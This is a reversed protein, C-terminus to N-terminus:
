NRTPAPEDVDDAVAPAKAQRRSSWLEAIWGSLAVLATVWLIPELPVASLTLVVAVIGVVVARFWTASWWGAPIERGSVLGATGRLASRYLLVGSALVVIAILACIVSGPLPSAFGIYGAVIGMSFSPLQLYGGNFSLIAVLGLLQMVGLIITGPIISHGEARIERLAPNSAALLFGILFLLWAGAPHSVAVLPATLTAPAGGVVGAVLVLVFLVIMIITGTTILGRLSAGGAAATVAAIALVVAVAQPSLLPIPAILGAGWRLIMSGLVVGVAIIALYRWIEAVRHGGPVPLEAPGIMSALMGLVVSATMGLVISLTWGGPAFHAGSIVVVPLGAMVTRMWARPVSIRGTLGLLAVIGAIVAVLGAIM